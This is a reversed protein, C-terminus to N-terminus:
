ANAKTEMAALLERSTALEADLRTGAEALEDDTVGGKLADVGRNYADIAPQIGRVIAPVLTLLNVVLEWEKKERSM